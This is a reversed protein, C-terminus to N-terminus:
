QNKVNREQGIKGMKRYEGAWHQAKPSNRSGNFIRPPKVGIVWNLEFSSLFRARPRL